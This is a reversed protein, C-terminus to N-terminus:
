QTINEEAFQALVEHIKASPAVNFYHSLVAHATEHTLVALSVDKASIYITNDGPSYFAIYNVERGYKDLHLKQVAEASELIKLQFHFPKPYMELVAQVREVVVEIKNIVEQDVTLATKKERLLYSLKELDLNKNFEQLTVEDTYDIVAFCCIIEDAASVAVLAVAMLAACLFAKIKFYAPKNM